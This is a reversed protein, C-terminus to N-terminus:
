DEPLRVGTMSQLKSLLQDQFAIDSAVPRAAQPREHYWLKGTAASAHDEAALWAQTLHGQVLDDPASPGGMRTPVWGPNVANSRVKPCRRALAFALATVYLKSEAYAENGDWRRKRWSIDDLEQPGGRQMSSSLFVLRRPREVLCTIIYPALLNVALTTPVGDPTPRRDSGTMIGANHIIADMPGFADIQQAMEVTQEHISLDGIVTGLAQNALPGVDGARSESRAHLLVEHGQQILHRAAGLGLGDSSGTILIRSM